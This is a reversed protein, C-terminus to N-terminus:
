GEMSIIASDIKRSLNPDFEDRMRSELLGLVMLPALNVKGASWRSIKVCVSRGAPLRENLLLNLYTRSIGIEKAADAQSLKKLKIFEQLSYLKKM